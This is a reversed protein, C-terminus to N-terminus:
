GLLGKTSPLETGTVKIAQRLARATAKFAAEVIHHTNRGCQQHLHLCIRAHDTLGGFFEPVLEVAWTGLMAAEPKLDYVLYPRGSVDVTATVLAEDLPCAMNGFREIGVRDGLAQKLCQGMVIGVDETTHHGDIHLDGTCSVKLATGSHKGLADLMHDLFGIGTSIEAPAARDLDWTVTIDTEKTKRSVTTIRPM